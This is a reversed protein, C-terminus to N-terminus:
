SLQPHTVYGIEMRPMQRGCSRHCTFLTPDTFRLASMGVFVGNVYSCTQSLTDVLRITHAKRRQVRFHTTPLRGVLEIAYVCIFMSELTKCKCCLNNVFRDLPPRLPSWADISHVVVSPLAMFLMGGLEDDPQQLRRLVLWCFFVDDSLCSCPWICNRAFNM